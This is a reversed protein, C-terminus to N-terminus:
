KESCVTKQTKTKTDIRNRTSKPQWCLGAFLSLNRSIEQETGASIRFDLKKQPSIM